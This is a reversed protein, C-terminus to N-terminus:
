PWLLIERYKEALVAKAYHREVFARAKGGKQRATVPNEWISRLKGAVDEASVECFYTAEEPIYSSFLHKAIVTPKGMSMAELLVQPLGENRSPMVVVDAERYVSPLENPHVPGHFNINGIKEKEFSGVFNFEFRSDHALLDAAGMVIDYGKEKSKRGVYFIKLKEKLGEKVDPSCFRKTDVGRPCICIKGEDRVLSKMRLEEMPSMAIVKNAWRYSMRRRLLDVPLFVKKWSRYRGMHGSSAIQNGPVRVVSRIKTRRAIAVVDFGLNFEGSINTVLDIHYTKVVKIGARIMTYHKAIDGILNHSPINEEIIKLNAFNSLEARIVDPMSNCTLLYINARGEIAEYLDRFVYAIGELADFNNSYYYPGIFLINM